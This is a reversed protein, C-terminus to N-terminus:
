NISMEEVNGAWALGSCGVPPPPPPPPLPKEEGALRGSRVLDLDVSEWSVTGESQVDFGELSVVVAASVVLEICCCCAVPEDM